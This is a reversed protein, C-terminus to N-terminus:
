IKEGFAFKKFVKNIKINYENDIEAKPIIVTFKDIKAIGDGKKGVSVIKVKIEDNEKIPPKMQM